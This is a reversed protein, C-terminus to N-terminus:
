LKKGFMMFSRFFPEIASRTEIDLADAFALIQLAYYTGGSWAMLVVGGSKGDEDIPPVGNQQVFSKMFNAYERARDKAFVTQAEPDGHKIKDLEEDSYPSSGPYHRRNVIVFRM